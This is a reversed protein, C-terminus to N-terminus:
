SRTWTKNDYTSTLYEAAKSTDELDTSYITYREATWGSKNIFTVSTLGTCYDFAWKGISTVSNPIDISTLGTCDRFACGGISTLKSNEAFKISTLGYCDSFASNGISTVSNPITISTLGTCDEFASGAITKTGEKITYAGSITDKAEILHNGIYLVDNENLYYPNFDLQTGQNIIIPLKFTDGRVLNFSITEPIFIM